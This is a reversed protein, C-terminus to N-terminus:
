IFGQEAVLVHHCVVARPLLFDFTAKTKQFVWPEHGVGQKEFRWFANHRQHHDHGQTKQDVTGQFVANPLSELVMLLRKGVLEAGGGYFWGCPPCKLEEGTNMQQDYCAAIFDYQVAIGIM